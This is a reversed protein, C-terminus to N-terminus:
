NVEMSALDGPVPINNRRAYSVLRSATTVNEKALQPLSSGLVAGTEVLSRVKGLKLPSVGKMTDPGDKALAVADSAIRGTAVAGAAFNVLGDTLSARAGDSLPAASDALATALAGAGEGVAAITTQLAKPDPKDSPARAAGAAARLRDAQEALGRAQLIAAQADLLRPLAEQMTRRWVDRLRAEYADVSQAQAPVSAGLALALLLALRRPTRTM